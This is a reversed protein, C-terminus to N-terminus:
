GPTGNDRSWRIFDAVILFYGAFGMECIVALETQLRQRVFDGSV